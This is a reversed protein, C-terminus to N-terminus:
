DIARLPLVSCHCGDLDCLAHGCNMTRRRCVYSVDDQVASYMRVYMHVYVSRSM